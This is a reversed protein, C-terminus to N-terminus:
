PLAVQVFGEPDGVLWGRGAVMELHVDRPIRSGTLEGDLDADPRLLIGCRDVRVERLWHSYATRARDSRVAAVVHRFPRRERVLSALTSHDAATTDADDVLVLLPDQADVASPLDPDDPRHFVVGRQDWPDGGVVVIRCGADAGAAAVSRLVSSRGSRHPGAVIAHGGPALVLSAPVLGLDSVGVVLRIGGDEHVISAPPLSSRPLVSPLTAVPRPGDALDGTNKAAVAAVAAGPNPHHRGLQVLVTGNPDIGRGPTLDPIDGPTIGFAAADAPDALELVLRQTCASVLQVPLRVAGNAALAAHIGVEAGRSVVDVFRPWTGSPDLEDWHEHFAGIGDVILLRRPHGHHPDARRAALDAALDAILRRQREREDAAIVAGVQPLGALPLLDGAGMDVIHVHLESASWKQAAALVTTTLATTTGSGPRGVVLLTGDTPEWRYPPLAQEDPDDALGLTLAQDARGTAGERLDTLDLEAPLPDPWPRRVPGGGDLAWADAVAAVIRELDNPGQHSSTPRRSPPEGETGRAIRVHRVGVASGGRGSRGGTWATQATVLDRPGLRVVARGPTARPLDAAARTGVVDTSDAEDQVRLAIRLATNARINDSVSGAPRQTALVLHVGLSRGRQAVGVLADVFGPLETALTAFEDIVVVLRPLPETGNQASRVGHDELDMAGAERLFRERHRLEAELCRLARAALHGDLDTVIGATHPLRDCADFASGGKFDVLLFNVHRPSCRLALSAILTRLLESKGAGTTGAILAHP